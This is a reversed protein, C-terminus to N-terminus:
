LHKIKNLIYDVKEEMELWNYQNWTVLIPDYGITRLHRQKMNLIGLPNTTNRATLNNGVVVFCYWKYKELDTPYKIEHLKYNKLALPEVFANTTKDLCLVIDSKTYHPLIHGIYLYKQDGVIRTIIEIVDFIMKNSASLGKTGHTEEPLYEILWKCAKAKMEESWKSGNYNPLDIEAGYNLLFLDRPYLKSNKGYVKFTFEPKLLDNMLKPSYMNRISLFGLAMPLCKPHLIKEPDRQEAHLEKYVADYFDPKTQPDYDFMTVALLVREIDKLRVNEPNCIQEVTKQTVAKLIPEHFIQLSTGTLIAHTACLYSLRPVEVSIKDLMKLINDITQNNQSFRIIKLIAALSIEHITESNEIVLELMRNLISALKIKTQTKFFGMAIIAMEDVTLDKLKNEIASEFEFEIPRKRCINMYFFAHVLQERSLREPKRALRDIFRFIYDGIRGLHLLYFMNAFKFLTDRDWDNLRWTCIDDLASWVDHYNHSSYNETMPLGKLCKLMAYLEDMTLNEVNDLLGDVLRDFRNDSININQKQCYDVVSLFTKVIRSPSAIRWHQDLLKNFETDSSIIQTAHQLHDDNLTTTLPFSELIRLAHVNETEYFNRQKYTNSLEVHHFKVTIQNPNNLTLLSNIVRRTLNKLM